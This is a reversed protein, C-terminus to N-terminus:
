REDDKKGAMFRRVEAPNIRYGARGGFRRARLQGKRIWRRVTDLNVRLMAAVESVTLPEEEMVPWALM